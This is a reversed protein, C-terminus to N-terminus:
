SWSWCLDRRRWKRGGHRAMCEFLHATRDIRGEVTYYCAVKEECAVEGMVTWCACVFASSEMSLRLAGTSGETEVTEAVPFAVDPSLTGATM